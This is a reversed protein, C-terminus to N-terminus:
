LGLLMEILNDQPSCDSKDARVNTHTWMGHVKGYYADNNFDFAKFPDNTLKLQQILGSKLDIQPHRRKIEKLLLRVSEIQENTYAHYYKHGRFPKKLEAVQDAPMELGVYNYYKDGKKELWGWNNIEIGISKRSMDISGVKGLHWAFYDDPFCEVVVGNQSDDGTMSRGGVVFQTAVRGRDDNNWAKITKYPNARGATHHLFVTHKKTTGQDTVYEDTDMYMRHIELGDETTYKGKDELKGDNDVFVMTSVDTSLDILTAWTKPGVVGDVILNNAGQFGKVAQETRPGFDGDISGAYYNLGKLIAQLEKVSRGKDGKKILLM